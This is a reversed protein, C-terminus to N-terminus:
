SGGSHPPVATAEDEQVQRKWFCIMDNKHYLFQVLEWGEDGRANLISTLAVVEPNPMQEFFCHGKSDCFFKDAGKDEVALGLRDRSEFIEDVTSTTIEYQWRLM